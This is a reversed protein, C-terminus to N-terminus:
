YFFKRNIRSSIKCDFGCSYLRAQVYFFLDPKMTDSKSKIWTQAMVRFLIVACIMITISSYKGRGGAPVKEDTRPTSYAATLKAADYGQWATAEGSCVFM